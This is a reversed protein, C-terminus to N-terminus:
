RGLIVYRLNTRNSGNAAASHKRKGLFCLTATCSLCLSYSSSPDANYLRSKRAADISLHESLLWHPLKLLSIQTSQLSPTKKNQKWLKYASYFLGRKELQARDASQELIETGEVEDRERGRDRKKEKKKEEGFVELLWSSLQQHAIFARFPFSYILILHAERGGERWVSHRVSVM